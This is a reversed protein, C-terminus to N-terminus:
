YHYGTDFKKRQEDTLASRIQKRAELALGALEDLGDMYRAGIEKPDAKPDDARRLDDTVARVKEALRDIAPAFKAKQEATLKFGEDLDKVFDRPGSALAAVQIEIGQSQRGLSKYEDDTLPRRVIAEQDAQYAHMKKLIEEAKSPDKRADGIMGRLDGEFTHLAEGIKKRKAEDLSSEAVAQRLARVQPLQAAQWVQGVKGIQERAASAGASPEPPAPDKAPAPNTAPASKPAPAGYSPFRTGMLAALLVALLVAVAGFPSLFRM